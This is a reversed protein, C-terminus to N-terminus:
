QERVGCTRCKHVSKRNWRAVDGRPIKHIFGIECVAISGCESHIIDVLVIKHEAPFSLLHSVSMLCRLHSRKLIDAM